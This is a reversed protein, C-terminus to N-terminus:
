GASSSSPLRERGAEVGRRIAAAVGPSVADAVADWDVRQPQEATSDRGSGGGGAGGIPPPPPPTLPPLSTTRGKGEASGSQLRELAPSSGGARPPSGGRRDRHDTRREALEATVEPPEYPSPRERDLQAGSQHWHFAPNQFGRQGGPGRVPRLMKRRVLWRLWRRVDEESVDHWRPIVAARLEGPDAPVCGHRDYQPVLLLYFALADGGHAKRLAALDSSRSAKAYLMRREAMRM